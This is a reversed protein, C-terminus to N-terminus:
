WCRDRGLLLTVHILWVAVHAKVDQGIRLNTVPVGTAKMM